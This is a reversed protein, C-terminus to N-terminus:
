LVTYEALSSHRSLDCAQLSSKEFPPAFLPTKTYPGPDGLSGSTFTAYFIKM